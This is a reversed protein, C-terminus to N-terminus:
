NRKFVNRKVFIRRRKNKFNFLKYCFIETLFIIVALIIGTGLVVLVQGIQNIEVPELPDEIIEAREETKKQLLKQIGSSYFKM